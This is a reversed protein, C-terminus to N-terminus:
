KQFVGKDTGLYHQNAFSLVYTHYWGDASKDWHTVLSSGDMWWTLTESGYINGTMLQRYTGTGDKKLTLTLGGLQWKGVVFSQFTAVDKDAKVYYYDSGRYNIYLEDQTVSKIFLTDNLKTGGWDNLVIKADNGQWNGSVSITKDTGIFATEAYNGNSSLAITQSKGETTLFGITEGSKFVWQGFVLEDIPEPEPEPTVPNCSIVLLLCLSFILNRM